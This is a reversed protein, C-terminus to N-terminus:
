SACETEDEDAKHALLVIHEGRGAVFPWGADAAWQLTNQWGAALRFPLLPRGLFTPRRFGSTRLEVVRLGADAFMAAFTSTSMRHALRAAAARRLAVKAAARLPEFAPGTLPDALESLRTRNDATAIAHGGPRLVRAIEAAAAAPDALWPFVGLVLVLDHSAAPFPLANADGRVATVREAVGSARAHAATQDVMEPVSDVADVVLGREALAVAATGAGSGIDLAHAGGPLGLSEVLELALALRRRYVLGERDDPRYIERWYSANSGFHADVARQRSM